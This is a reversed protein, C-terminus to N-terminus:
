IFPPWCDAVHRGNSDVSYPWIAIDCYRTTGVNHGNIASLNPWIAARQPVFIICVCVLYVGFHRLFKNCVLVNKLHTIVFKDRIILM